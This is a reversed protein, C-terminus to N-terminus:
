SKCKDSESFLGALRTPLRGFLRGPVGVLNDRLGLTAALGSNNCAMDLRDLDSPSPSLLGSSWGSSLYSPPNSPLDDRLGLTAALGSNNCAMDLLDLDSPSPSM